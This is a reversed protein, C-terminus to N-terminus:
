YKDEVEKWVDRFFAFLKSFYESFYCFVQNIEVGFLNYSIESLGEKKWFAHSTSETKPIAWVIIEAIEIYSFVKVTLLM